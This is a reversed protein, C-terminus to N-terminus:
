FAGFELKLGLRFAFLWWTLFFFLQIYLLLIDIAFRVVIVVPLDYFDLFLLDVVKLFLDSLKLQLLIRFFSFLSWGIGLLGGYLLNLWKIAWALFRSSLIVM